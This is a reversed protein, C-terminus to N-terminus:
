CYRHLLLAWCETHCPELETPLYKPFPPLPIRTRPTEPRPPGPNPAPAPGREQPTGCSHLSFLAKQVARPGLGWCAAPLLSSAQSWLVM